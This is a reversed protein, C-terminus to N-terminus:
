GDPTTKRVMVLTSVGPDFGVPEHLFTTIRDGLLAGLRVEFQRAALVVAQNELRGSRGKKKGGASLVPSSRLPGRTIEQLSLYRKTASRTDLRQGVPALADEVELRNFATM